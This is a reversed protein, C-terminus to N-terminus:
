SGSSTSNPVLFIILCFIIYILLLVVSLITFINAIKKYKTDSSGRALANVVISAIALLIGPLFSYFGYAVVFLILTFASASEHEIDTFVALTLVITFILFAVSLGFLVIGTIMLGKKSSKSKDVVMNAGVQTPTSPTVDSVTNSDINNSSIQGKGASEQSEVIPESVKDQVKITDQSNGQEQGDIQSVTNTAQLSQATNDTERTKNKQEVDKSM